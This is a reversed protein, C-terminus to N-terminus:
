KNDVMKVLLDWQRKQDEQIMDLEKKTLENATRQEVSLEQVSVYAEEYSKAKEGLAWVAQVNHWTSAIIPIVIITTLISFVWKKM